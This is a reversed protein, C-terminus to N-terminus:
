YWLALLAKAVSLTRRFSLVLSPPSIKVTKYLEGAQLDWKSRNYCTIQTALHAGLRRAREAQCHFYSLPITACSVWLALFHIGTVLFCLKERRTTATIRPAPCPVRMPRGTFLTNRGM